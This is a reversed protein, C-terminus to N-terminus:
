QGSGNNVRKLGINWKWVEQFGFFCFFLRQVDHEFPNFYLTRLVNELADCQTFLTGM